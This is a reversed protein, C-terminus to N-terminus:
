QRLKDTLGWFLDRTNTTGMTVGDSQGWRQLWMRYNGKGARTNKQHTQSLCPDVGPCGYRNKKKVRTSPHIRTKTLHSLCSDLGSGSYKNDMRGRKKKKCMKWVRFRAVSESIVEVFAQCAFSLRDGSRRRARGGERRRRRDVRRQPVHVHARERPLRGPGDLVEDSVRAAASVVVVHDEVADYGLEHDLRAVGRPSPLPPVLM